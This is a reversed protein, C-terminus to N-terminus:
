ASGSKIRTQTTESERAHLTRVKEQASQLRSIDVQTYLETTRVQTHGLLTQVTRLDGTAALTYTGCIHRLTHPGKINVGSRRSATHFLSKMNGYPKGDKNPAILATKDVVAPKIQELILKAQSPLPSIRPRGGKTKRLYIIGQDLDVDRWQLTTAETYRLGAGVMIWLLANKPGPRRTKTAPDWAGDNEVSEMWRQFDAPAPIRPLPRQYPLKEIQVSLKDCYKRKHMWSILSQLYKLELNCSCPVNRRAHQYQNITAETIQGVTLHGFHPLLHKLAWGISEVTRPARHLTMWELWAPIIERLPPNITNAPSGKRRLAQEILRAQAETCDYITQYKRGGRRGNPWWDIIWANDVSPHPKIAM